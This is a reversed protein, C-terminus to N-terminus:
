AYHVSLNGNLVNSSFFKLNLFLTVLHAKTFGAWFTACRTKELIVHAYSKGAKISFGLLKPEKQVYTEFIGL